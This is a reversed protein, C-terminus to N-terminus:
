FESEYDDEDVDEGREQADIADHRATNARARELAGLAEEYTDYPGMRENWSSQKGVEVQHTRTNFYYRPKRGFM